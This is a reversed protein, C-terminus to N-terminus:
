FPDIPFQSSCPSGSDEDISQLEDTFITEFLKNISKL